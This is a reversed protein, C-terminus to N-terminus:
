LGVVVAPARDGAAVDHAVARHRAEVAAVDVAVVALALQAAHAEGGAAGPVVAGDGADPRDGPQVGETLVGGPPDVDDGLLARDVPERRASPGRPGARDM